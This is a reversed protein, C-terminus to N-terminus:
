DIKEAKKWDAKELVRMGLKWSFVGVKETNRELQFGAQRLADRAYPVLPSDTARIRRLTSDASFAHQVAHNLLDNQIGSVRFPEPVFFHRITATSSTGKSHPITQKITTDTTNIPEENTSDLSADVAIFGLLREGYELIWFGSCPSRSYYGSIDVIDPKRLVVELHKEFYPRNL